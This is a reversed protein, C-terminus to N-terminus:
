QGRSRPRSARSVSEFLSEGNASEMGAMLRKALLEFAEASSTEGDLIAQAFRGSLNGADLRLAREAHARAAGEDRVLAAVVALGGHSEAFNRDLALASEFSDRAGDLDKLVVQTWAQGHWTGIHGPMAKLAQRFHDLAASADKALLEAFALASRARGDAPNLRLAAASLERAKRADAAALALSAQTVLAELTPVVGPAADLAMASWRTADGIQEADLAALSAVGAARASLGARRDMAQAWQTARVMDGARHLARLWLVDLASSGAEVHGQAQAEMRPALREACAAHRGQQFDIFALNHLVADAFAPPQGPLGQLGHLVQEARPFDSQALWFDAERLAWDWAGPRLSQGHRLHFEARDWAACQLAATFAEALLGENGSDDRLYTELRDLRARIASTDISTDSVTSFSTM